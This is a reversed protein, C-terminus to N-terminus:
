EAPLAQLLQALRYPKQLFAVREPLQPLQGKPLGSVLLMRAQPQLSAAREALEIGSVGGPMMVDSVILDYRTDGEMAALGDAGNAMATVEFGMDEMAEAVLERLATEDEIFLMKRSM